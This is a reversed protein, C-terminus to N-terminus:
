RSNLFLSLLEPPDEGHALTPPVNFSHPRRHPAIATATSTRRPHHELRPPHFILVPIPALSPPTSVIGKIPSLLSHSSPDVSSSQRGTALAIEIAAM